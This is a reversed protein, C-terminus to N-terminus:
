LKLLQKRMDVFYLALCYRILLKSTFCKSWFSVHQLVCSTMFCLFWSKNYKQKKKEKVGTASINNGRKNNKFSYHFNYFRFNEIQRGRALFKESKQFSWLLEDFIHKFIFLNGYAPNKNGCRPHPPPFTINILGIEIEKFHGM